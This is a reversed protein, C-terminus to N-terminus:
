KKGITKTMKIQIHDVNYMIFAYVKFLVTGPINCVWRPENSEFFFSQLGIIHKMAKM